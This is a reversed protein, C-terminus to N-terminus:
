PTGRPNRVQKTGPMILSSIDMPKDIIPEEKGDKNVSFKVGCTSCTQIRTKWKNYCSECVSQQSRKAEAYGLLLIVDNWTKIFDRPHVKL